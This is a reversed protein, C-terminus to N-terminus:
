SVRAVVVYEVGLEDRTVGYLRGDRVIPTPHLDLAFPVLVTGMYQGTANFVDFDVASGTPAARRVWVHDGGDIFFGDVLPKRDPIRSHDITGGLAVFDQLNELAEAREEVSVPVPEHAKTVVRLTDGRNDLEFLRYQDTVLGWIRGRPSLRWALGGQFPVPEDHVQGGSTVTFEERTVPDSPVVLTDVPSFDRDYRRLMISFQPRFRVIPVYYAGERDRGGPWPLITVGGPVRIEEVHHGASDLVTVRGNGPDVVWVDGGFADAHVPQSYEGPGSGSRGVTRVHHGSRDFIRIEASQGDLVWIREFEDVVLSRIDSFAAPGDEDVAGIRLEEVVHWRDEERWLGRERNLVVVQGTSVTDVQGDWEGKPDDSQGCGAAMLASLATGILMRSHM